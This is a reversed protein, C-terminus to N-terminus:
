KIGEVVKYKNPLKCFVRGQYFFCHNLPLKRDWWLHRYEWELATCFMVFKLDTKEVELFGDNVANKLMNCAKAKSKKSKSAVVGTRVPILAGRMLKSLKQKISKTRAQGQVYCHKTQRIISQVLYNELQNRINGKSNVKVYKFNQTGRESLSISIEKKGVLHITQGVKYAWGIEILASIIASFTNRSLGTRKARDEWMGKYKYIKGNPYATKLIVYNKLMTMKDPCKSLM